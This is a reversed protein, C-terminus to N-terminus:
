DTSPYYEFFKTPSGAPHVATAIKREPAAALLWSTLAPIINADVLGAGFIRTGGDEPNTWVTLARAAAGALFDNLREPGAFASFEFSVPVMDMRARAETRLAEPQNALYASLLPFRLDFPGEPAKTQMPGRGRSRQTDAVSGYRPPVFALVFPCIHPAILAGVVWYWSERGLQNAYTYCLFAMLANGPFRGLLGHYISDFIQLGVPADNMNIMPPVFWLLPSLFLLIRTAKM